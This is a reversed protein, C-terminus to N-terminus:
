EQVLETSKILKWPTEVSESTYEGIHLGDVAWYASAAQSAPISFKQDDVQVYQISVAESDFLLNTCDDAGLHQECFYVYKGEPSAMYVPPEIHHGQVSLTEPITDGLQDIHVSLVMQGEDTEATLQGNEYIVTGEGESGEPPQGSPPVYGAKDSTGLVPSDSYEMMDTDDMMNNRFGDHFYNNIGFGIFGSTLGIIYALVVLVAKEHKTGELM